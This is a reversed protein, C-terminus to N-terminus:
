LNKKRLFKATSKKIDNKVKITDLKFDVNDIRDEYNKCLDSLNREFKEWGDRKVSATVKIEWTKGDKFNILVMNLYGFPLVNLNVESFIEPWHEIVDKPLPRGPVTM